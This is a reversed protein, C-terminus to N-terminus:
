AVENIAEDRNVGRNAKSRKDKIMAELKAKAKYEVILNDLWGDEAAEDLFNFLKLRNFNMIIISPHLPNKGGGHNSGGRWRVKIENNVAEWGQGQLKTINGYLILFKRIHNSIIYHIYVTCHSFSLM